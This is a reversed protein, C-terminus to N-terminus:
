LTAPRQGYAGPSCPTSVGGILWRRRFMPRSPCPWRSGPVCVTSLAYIGCFAFTLLVGPSMYSLSTQAASEREMSACRSVRSCMRLSLDLPHLSLQCGCV